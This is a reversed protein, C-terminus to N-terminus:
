RCTKGMSVREIGALDRISSIHVFGHGALRQRVQAAQDHGHELVLWGGPQLATPASAIIRDIVALADLGPTLAMRPEFRLDGRELHPDDAAVYPPNSVILDFCRDRVPELLDGHLLEVGALGLAARNRAATALADPSLDIGTCRWGPREAALTLIICGSGTGLDVVRANEPLALALATEILHETEPRPILVATDVAFERGYFERKGSLWALPAGRLRQSLLSDLQTQQDPSLSRNAHAYLWARDRGLGQAAIVEAELPSDLRSRARRLWHKITAVSPADNPDFNSRM